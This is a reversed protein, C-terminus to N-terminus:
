VVGKRGRGDPSTESAFGFAGAEGGIEVAGEGGEGILAVFGAGGDDGVVGADEAAKMEKEVGVAVEEVAGEGGEAIGKAGVDAAADSRKNRRKLVLWWAEEAGLEAIVGSGQTGRAERHLLPHRSTRM